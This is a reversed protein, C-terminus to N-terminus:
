APQTQPPSLPFQLHPREQTHSSRKQLTLETEKTVTQLQKHLMDWTKLLEQRRLHHKYDECKFSSHSELFQQNNFTTYLDYM